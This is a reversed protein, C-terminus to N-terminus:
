VFTTKVGEELSVNYQKGDSTILETKLSKALAIFLADYVTIKYKVAIKFAETLYEDQNVVIIAEKKLLDSLIRVAIGEDMEGKIVKKWLASAIEKIALDLTVVGEPIIEAVKEWGREKSFFKVLTSSDIVRM